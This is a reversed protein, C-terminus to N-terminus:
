KLRCYFRYKMLGYCLISHSRFLTDDMVQSENSFVCVASVPASSRQALLVSYVCAPVSLAVTCGLTVPVFAANLRSSVVYLLSLSFSSSV